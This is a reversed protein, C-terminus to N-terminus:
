ARGARLRCARLHDAIVSRGVLRAGCRCEARQPVVEFVSVDDVTPGGAVMMSLVGELFELRERTTEIEMEVAAQRTRDNKNAHSM